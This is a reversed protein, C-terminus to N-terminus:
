AVTDTALRCDACRGTMELQHSELTINLASTARRLAAELNPDDFDIIKSCNNCWFHHHHASFGDSLELLRQSGVGIEQVLKLKKFLSITRYVTVLDVGQEKAKFRLRSMALPSQATVIRFVALRPSTVREGHDKLRRIFDQELTASHMSMGYKMHLNNAVLM